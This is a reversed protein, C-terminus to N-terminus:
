PRERDVPARRGELTANESAYGSQCASSSDVALAPDCESACANRMTLGIRCRRGLKGVLHRPWLPGLAVVRLDTRATIVPIHCAVGSVLVAAVGTTQLRIGGSSVSRRPQSARSTRI